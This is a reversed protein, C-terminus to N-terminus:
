RRAPHTRQGGGGAKETCLVGRGRDGGNKLMEPEGKRAGPAPGARANSRALFRRATAYASMSVSPRAFIKTVDAGASATLSGPWHADGTARAPDPSRKPASSSM